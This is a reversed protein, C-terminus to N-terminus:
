VSTPPKDLGKNKGKKNPKQGKKTKVKNIAKNLKDFNKLQEQLAIANIQQKLEEAALMQMQEMLKVYMITADKYFGDNALAMHTYPMRGRTPEEGKLHVILATGIFPEKEDKDLKIFIGNEKGKFAAIAQTAAEMAQTDADFQANYENLPVECEWNSGHVIYVPLEDTANMNDASM